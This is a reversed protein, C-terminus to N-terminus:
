KMSSPIESYWPLSTCDKYAGDSNQSTVNTGDVSVLWLKPANILKSCGSFIKSVYIYYFWGTNTLMFKLLNDDAYGLETCDMFTEQFSIGDSPWDSKPINSVWSFLEAPVRTIKTGRFCGVFSNPEKQTTFLNTPVETINTEAFTNIFLHIKTSDYFLKEPIKTISTKRFTGEVSELQSMGNLLKAPIKNFNECGYFAYDIVTFDKHYQFLNEPVEYFYPAKTNPGTVCFDPKYFIFSANTVVQSINTPIASLIRTLSSEYHSATSTDQVKNNVFTLVFKVNAQLTLKTKYVGNKQYKFQRVSTSKPSTTSYGYSNEITVEGNGKLTFTIEDKWEFIFVNSAVEESKKWLLVNGGWIESTEKDKVPFGTIEQRNLFAKYIM